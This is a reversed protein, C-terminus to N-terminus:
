KKEFNIFRKTYSFANTLRYTLFYYFSLFRNPRGITNLLEKHERKQNYIDSSLQNEQITYCSCVKNYYYFKYNKEIARIWFDSDSILKYKLDFGQLEIFMSSRFLSAQQTFMIVGMSFLNKFRTYYKSSVQEHILKNDADVFNVRGYVSHINQNNDLVSFLDSFGELWYDDDNIFTMYKFEKGYKLLAYNLASFIGNCDKPESIIELDPYKARLRNCSVEPTVIVHHVRGQGFNSVSNITNAISARDGLTPTM